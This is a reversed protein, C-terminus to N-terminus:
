PQLSPSDWTNVPDPPRAPRERPEDRGLRLIIMETREADTPDFVDRLTADLRLDHDEKYIQLIQEIEDEQTRGIGAIPDLVILARVTRLQEQNTPM